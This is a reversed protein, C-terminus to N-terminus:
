KKRWLAKVTGNKTRTLRLFASADSDSSAPLM